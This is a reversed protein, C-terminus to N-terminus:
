GFVNCWVEIEGSTAGIATMRESGALDVLSIRSSRVERGGEMCTLRLVFMCHSRSSAANLLHSAMIKCRVGSRYVSMAAAASDVEVQLDYM